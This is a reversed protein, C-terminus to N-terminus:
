EFSDMKYQCAQITTNGYLIVPDLLFDGDFYKLSDIITQMNPNKVRM